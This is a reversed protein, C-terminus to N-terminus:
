FETVISSFRGSIEVRDLVNGDYDLDCLELQMTGWIADSDLVGGVHKRGVIVLTGSGCGDGVEYDDYSADLEGKSTEYTGEEPALWELDLTYDFSVWTPLPKPDLGGPDYYTAGDDKTSVMEGDVVLEAKGDMYGDLQPYDSPIDPDPLPDTLTDLTGCGTAAVVALLVLDPCRTSM